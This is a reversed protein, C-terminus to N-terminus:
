LGYSNHRLFGAKPTEWWAGCLGPQVAVPKFNSIKSTSDIYRFCLCKDATSNSHLQDAGKNEIICFDTKNQHHKVDWYVAMTM